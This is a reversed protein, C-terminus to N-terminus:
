LGEEASEFNEDMARLALGYNGSSGLWDQVLATVDWKPGKRQEPQKSGIWRWM